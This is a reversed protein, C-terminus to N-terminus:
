SESGEEIVGESAQTPTTGGGADEEEDAVRGFLRLM